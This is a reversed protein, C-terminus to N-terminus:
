RRKPSQRLYGFAPSWNRPKPLPGTLLWLRAELFSSARERPAGNYGEGALLMGANALEQNFNGMATLIEKGPLIGAESNKDAKVLVMFRM